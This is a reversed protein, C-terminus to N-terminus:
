SNKSILVGLVGIRTYMNSMKWSPRCPTRTVSRRFASARGRHESPRKWRMPSTIQRGLQGIHSHKPDLSLGQCQLQHSHGHSTSAIFLLPLTALFVLAIVRLVLLGAFFAASDSKLYGLLEINRHRPRDLANTTLTAVMIVDFAVILAWAAMLASEKIALNCVGIHPDYSIHGFFRKMAAVSLCFSATHTVAMASILVYFISRNLLFVWKTSQRSLRWVLQCELDLTIAHEWLAFGLSAAAFYRSLSVVSDSTQLASSPDM